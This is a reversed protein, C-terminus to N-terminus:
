KGILYHRMNSVLRYTDYLMFKMTKRSLKKRWNQIYMFSGIYTRCEYTGIINYLETNNEKVFHDFDRLKDEKLCEHYELLYYFYLKSSFLTLRNKLFEDSHSGAILLYKDLNNFMQMIIREEMWMSKCRQTSEVTQGARGRRYCYVCVPYFRVTNVASMPYYAWELDTYSIGETQRYKIKAFLSTRYTLEHMFLTGLVSVPIDNPSYIRENDLSLLKQGRVNGEGDVDIVGTIVADADCLSLYDILSCIGNSDVFDDADLIKIYKGAAELVGRNICSGYNGNEKDIVRFTQPFMVEYGHAIESSNDVSGDNVVLVELLEMKSNDVILSSLCQGLYEEMNYTPVVITLIKNM